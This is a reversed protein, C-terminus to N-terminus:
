RSSDLQKLFDDKKRRSVDIHYADTVVVYGGEGRVYRQVHAINLLYSHHVRCFGSGSLLDEFEKLHRSVVETQKGRLHLRTYNGEAKLFIIDSTNFFTIGEITHVALRELKGSRFQVNNLVSQYQHASRKSLIREKAKEIAPRLDDIDVPKLLYDLASFRIAKIAYQDHATVFVVEFSLPAVKRLLEFGSMEPMQIDLFVLNPKSKKLAELGAAPTDCIGVIRIEPFYDELAIRLAERGDAEDDIILADINM